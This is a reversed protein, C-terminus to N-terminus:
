YLIEELLLGKAPAAPGAERRDKKGLMGLFEDLPTYGRGVDVLTGVIARVMGHLFRDARITFKLRSGEQEWRAAMVNCRHHDVDSNAKCFSEFDHVGIIAAAGWRMLDIQLSYGLYWSHRRAIASPTQTIMYSYVRERASYRAHFEPPVDQVDHVVIAEPLLGNLANRLERLGLSSETRFNAVQGLAHVGADTRGAGIISVNEQLVKALVGEIEAQITPGNEQRQWGCFDTGDYEILLKINRM